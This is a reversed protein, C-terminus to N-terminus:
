RRNQAIQEEYIELGSIERKGNKGRILANVAQENVVLLDAPVKNIDVVKFKWVTKLSAMALDGRVRSRDANSSEATKTADLRDVTAATQANRADAAKADAEEAKRKADDLAKDAALKAAAAEVKRKEEAAIEEPTPGAGALALQKAREEAEAAEKALRESEKRQRDAEAEARKRERDAAEAEKRKREEEAAAKRAAEEAERKIRAARQVQYSTQIKNLAEKAGLLKDTINAKFFGDVIGCGELYPAKVGIRVQDAKKAHESIQAIVGALTGSLEDSDISPHDEAFRAAMDLLDDRSVVLHNHDAALETRLAEGIKLDPPPNNGGIVERNATDTV